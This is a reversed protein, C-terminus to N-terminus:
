FGFWVAQLRNWYRWFGPGVRMGVSVQAPVSCYLCFSLLAHALGLAWVNPVRRYLWCSIGGAVLTVAALFPNPLHFLAFAAAAAIVSRWGRGLLEEFGRFFVALLGYQQATGWVFRKFLNVPWLTLDPYSLTGLATGIVVPLVILPGVLISARWVARPLNDLGFGIERWSEGRRLHISVGLAAYLVVCVVFDGRFADQWLWIYSLILTSM